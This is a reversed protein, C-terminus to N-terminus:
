IFTNEGAIWSVDVYVPSGVTINISNERIKEREQVVSITCIYMYTYLLVTSTWTPPHTCLLHMTQVVFEFLWARLSWKWNNIISDAQSNKCNTAMSIYYMGVSSVLEQMSSLIFYDPLHRDTILYSPELEKGKRGM